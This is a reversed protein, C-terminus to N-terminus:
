DIDNIKDIDGYTIGLITGINDKSINIIKSIGDPGSVVASIVADATATVGPAVELQVTYTGLVDPTFSATATSVGLGVKTQKDYIDAIETPSLVRTWIALEDM